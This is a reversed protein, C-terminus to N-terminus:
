EIASADRLKSTQGKLVQVFERLFDVIAATQDVDYKGFLKSMAARYSVMTDGLKKEVGRHTILPRIIVSRRDTPNELREVYGAKELHDVIGTIAGTTLRVEEALAKATM